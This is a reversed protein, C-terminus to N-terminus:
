DRSVRLVRVASNGARDFAILGVKFYQGSGVVESRVSDADAVNGTFLTNVGASWPFLLGNAYTCGLTVVPTTSVSTNVGCGQTRGVDDRPLSGCDVAAALTTCSTGINGPLRFPTEDSDRLYRVELTGSSFDSGSSSNITARFQYPGGVPLSGMQTDALIPAIFDAIFSGRAVTAVVNVEISTVRAEAPIATLDLSSTIISSSGDIATIPAIQDFPSAIGDVIITVALRTGALSNCNGTFPITMDTSVRTDALNAVNDQSVLLTGRAACETGSDRVDGDRGDGSDREPIGADTDSSGDTRGRYQQWDIDTNIACGAVSSLAAFGAIGLIKRARNRLSALVGVRPSKSAELQSLVPKKM